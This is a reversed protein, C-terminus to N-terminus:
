NASRKLAAVYFRLHTEAAHFPDLGRLETTRSTGDPLYVQLTDSFVEFEAAYEKDEIEIKAEFM